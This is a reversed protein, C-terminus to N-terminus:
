GRRVDHSRMDALGGIGRLKGDLHDGVPSASQIALVERQGVFQQDQTVRAAATAILRAQPFVLHLFQEGILEAQFHGDTM